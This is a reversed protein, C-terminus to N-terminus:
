YCTRYSTRKVKPRVKLHSEQLCRAALVAGRGAVVLCLDAGRCFRLVAPRPATANPRCPAITEIADIM